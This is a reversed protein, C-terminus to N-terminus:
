RSLWVLSIAHVSLTLTCFSLNLLLTLCFSLSFTLCVIVYWCGIMRWGCMRKKGECCAVNVWHSVEFQICVAWPMVACGSMLALLGIVESDSWVRVRDILLTILVEEM